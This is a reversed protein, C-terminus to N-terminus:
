GYRDPSRLASCRMCLTALVSGSDRVARPGWFDRRSMTSDESLSRSSRRLFLLLTGIETRIVRAPNVQDFRCNAIMEATMPSPMNAKPKKDPAPSSAEAPRPKAPAKPTGRQNSDNKFFRRSAFNRAPSGSATSMMTRPTFAPKGSSSQMFIIVTSDDSGIFVSNRSIM